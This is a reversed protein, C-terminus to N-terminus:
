QENNLKIQPKYSFGVEKVGGLETLPNTNNYARMAQRIQLNYEGSETFHYGEKYWLKNYKLSGMGEGMLKGDPYAMYYELTDVEVKGKPYYLSTIVFLNNYKYNETNRIHLFLDFPTVTDKAEFSFEVISDKHWTGETTKLEFFVDEKSCSVVLICCMSLYLVNKLM